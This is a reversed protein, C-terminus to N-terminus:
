EVFIANANEDWGTAPMHKKLQMTGRRSSVPNQLFSITGLDFGSLVFDTSKGQTVPDKNGSLSM